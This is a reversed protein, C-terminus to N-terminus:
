YVIGFLQSSIFGDLLSLIVGYMIIALENVVCIIMVSSHIVGNKRIIFFVLITHNARFGSGGSKVGSVYILIM